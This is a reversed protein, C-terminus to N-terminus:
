NSAADVVERRADRAAVKRIWSPQPGFSSWGSAPQVIRIGNAICAARLGASRRAADGSSRLRAREADTLARYGAVLDRSNGRGDRMSFQESVYANWLTGFKM